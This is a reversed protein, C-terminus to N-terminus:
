GIGSRSTRRHGVRVAARAAARRPGLIAGFAEAGAAQHLLGQVGVRGEVPGPRSEDLHGDRQLRSGRARARIPSDIPPMGWTRRRSVSGFAPLPGAVSGAAVSAVTGAGVVSFYWSKPSIARPPM